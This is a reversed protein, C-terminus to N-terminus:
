TTLSAEAPLKISLLHSAGDKMSVGYLADAGRMTVRNHTIVIFQTNKALEKLLRSFRETNTEDLAADIEDLVLFPPRRVSVLAFLLAISVLTREGGSLMSLNKIRKKPIEIKIEIGEEDDQSRTNLLAAQGGNFMLRFYSTFSESMRTLTQGFREKIEGDLDQILAEVSSLAKTLDNHENELFEYRRRVGEYEEQVAPDITGVEAAKRKLRWLESEAKPEDIKAPPPEKLVEALTLVGLSRLDHHLQEKQLRIKEEEVELTDRERELLRLAAHSARWAEEKDASASHKSFYEAQIKQREALLKKLEDSARSAEAEIKRVATEEKKGSLEELTSRLRGLFGAFREILTQPDRGITEGEVIIEGLRRKLDQPDLTKLELRILSKQLEREEAQLKQIKTDLENLRRETQATKEFSFLEKKLEEIERERARVKEGAAKKKKALDTEVKSLRHYRVAFLKQVTERLAREIQERRDLKSVERKLFNLRPTLETLLASVKELNERTSRLKLLSYHRKDQFEKVGAADEIFERFEQPGLTILMDSMGQSLVRFSSSGIGSASLFTTLDMLRVKKDNLSYDNEGRKSVVREIMVEDVDLPVVDGVRGLKLSVRARSLASRATSGHFILDEGKKGRLNKLSQEALVWRIADVLNSKGVGNPGVIATIGEPFDLTTKKAFSKFGVLELQKLYM